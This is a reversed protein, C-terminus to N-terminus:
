ASIEAVPLNKQSQTTGKREHKASVATYIAKFM